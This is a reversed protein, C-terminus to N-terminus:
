GANREEGQRCLEQFVGFDDLRSYDATPRYEAAAEAFRIQTYRAIGEQWLQFNLYKADDASLLSFFKQRARIYKKAVREFKTQEPENVARLPLDRLNGFSRVVEPRDYPFQYNMMWMGTQDGHSLGLEDVAKFYGPQAYQLQHFHEHMVTILWPTSSKATTNAPEGIVIVSPPGFAPFTALLSTSFQRPRAFFGDGLPKFDAPPAPHHTLYETDATVLLLPDPVHNWNPWVKNQIEASVRYFERILTADRSSLPQEPAQAFASTAILLLAFCRPLSPTLHMLSLRM